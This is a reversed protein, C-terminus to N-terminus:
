AGIDNLVAGAVRGPAQVAAIMTMLGGMSTGVFVARRIQVQDLLGLMDATYVGPNYREALPDRDSEGRGRQSAVIVRRGLSAIRPALEDFDRVNRTLGHLCLVPEARTERPGYDRYHLRLGDATEFFRDDFDQAVRKM